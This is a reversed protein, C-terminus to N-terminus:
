NGAAIHDSRMRAAYSALWADERLQRSTKRAVPIQKACILMLIVPTLMIRQRLLTGLNSIAGGFTVLFILAYMAIFSVYPDRWRRLTSWITHRRKWCLFLLGISETASALALASHMEWPFPRFILFPSEVIRVPLSVGENFASGGTQSYKTLTNAEQVVNSSNANDNQSDILEKAQSVLFYSGVLLIPILIIKAAKNAGGTKPKGAVYSFTMALALMAAVHARILLAGTLGLACLFVSHPGPRHTLRAFGFCTLGIFLQIPADKGIFSSWFLISPMLLVLLGFLWRDGEPFAIVFARYFLYGGALSIFSSAIFLTPLADGILLAALGCLNFILNTSWYPPQFVSWGVIQFTDAIGVGVTWYHFTDAVGGYIAIGVWLFLSSAAMHAVLSAMSLKRLYPDSQTFHAIAVACVVALLPVCILSSTYSYDQPSTFFLAVLWLPSTAISAFAVLRIIRSYQAISKPRAAARVSEHIARSVPIGM